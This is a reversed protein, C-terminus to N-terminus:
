ERGGHEVVALTRGLVSASEGLGAPWRQAVFADDMAPARDRSHGTAVDRARTLAYRAWDGGDEPRTRVDVRLARVGRDASARLEPDGTAISVELLAATAIAQDRVHSTAEPGFRGSAGQRTRLWRIAAAIARATAPDSPVTRSEGILALIALGTAAEDHRAGGVNAAASFRGDDGQAALLRAREVPTGMTAPAPAGSAVITATAEPSAISDAVPGADSEPSREGRGVGVWLAAVISAAAAFGAFAARRRVRLRGREAALAAGVDAEWDGGSGFSSLRSGLFSISDVDARCAPCRLLHRSIEARRAANADDLSPDDSSRGLAFWTRDAPSVCRDGAGHTDRARDAPPNTVM